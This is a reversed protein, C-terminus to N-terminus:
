IFFCVNLVYTHRAMHRGAVIHLISSHRGRSGGGAPAACAPRGSRRSGHRAPPPPACATRRAPSRPRASRRSRRPPLPSGRPATGGTRPCSPATRRPARPPRPRCRWAARRPRPRRRSVSGTSAMRCAHPRPQVDADLRLDVADGEDVPRGHHAPRAPPLHALPVDEPQRLGDQRPISVPRMRACGTRGSACMSMPALSSAARYTASAASRACARASIISTRSWSM